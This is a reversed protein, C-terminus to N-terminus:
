ESLACLSTSSILRKTDPLTTLEVLKFCNILILAAPTKTSEEPEPWNEVSLLTARKAESPGAVLVMTATITESEEMM